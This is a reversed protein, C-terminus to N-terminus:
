NINLIGEDENDSSAFVNDSFHGKEKEGLSAMADNLDEFEETIWKDRELPDIGLLQQSVRGHAAGICENKEESSPPKTGPLLGTITDIGYTLTDLIIVRSSLSRLEKYQRKDNEVFNQGSLLLSFIKGKTTAASDGITDLVLSPVELLSSPKSASVRNPIDAMTPTIPLQTRVARYLACRNPDSDTAFVFILKATRRVKALEGKEPDRFFVEPSNKIIGGDALEHGNEESITPIFVFPLAGSIQTAVARSADPTKEYSYEQLTGESMDSVAVHLDKIMYRNEPKLLSRLDHADKFTFRVGPERNIFHALRDKIEIYAKKAAEQSLYDSQNAVYEDASLLFGNEPKLYTELHCREIEEFLKIVNAGDDRVNMEGNKGTDFFSLLERFELSTIVQGFTDADMGISVMLATMAGASAGAVRTVNKLIGHERLAGLVGAYAIGKSGGGSFVLEEVNAPRRCVQYINRGNLSKRRILIEVMSNSDEEVVISPKLPNNRIIERVKEIQQEAPSLKQKQTLPGELEHGVPSSFSPFVSIFSELSM